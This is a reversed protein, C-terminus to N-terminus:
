HAHFAGPNTLPHTQFELVAKDNTLRALETISTGTDVASVNGVWGAIKRQGCHRVGTCALSVAQGAQPTFRAQAAARVSRCINAVMGPAVPWSGYTM